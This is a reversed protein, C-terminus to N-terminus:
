EPVLVLYTHLAEGFAYRSRKYGNKVEFLHPRYAKEMESAPPELYDFLENFEANKAAVQEEVSQVADNHFTKV